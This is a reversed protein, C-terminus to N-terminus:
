LFRGLDGKSIQQIKEGQIKPKRIKVGNVSCHSKAIEKDIKEKQIKINKCQLHCNSYRPFRHLPLICLVEPTNKDTWRTGVSPREEIWCSMELDLDHKICTLRQSFPLHSVPIETPVVATHRNAYTHTHTSLVRTTKCAGSSASTTQGIQNQHSKGANDDANWPQWAPTCSVHYLNLATVNM